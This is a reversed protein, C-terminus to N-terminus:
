PGDSDPGRGGGGAPQGARRGPLRRVVVDMIHAAAQTGLTIPAVMAVVLIVVGWPFGPHSPPTQCTALGSHPVIEVFLVYAAAILGGLVALGKKIDWRQSANM